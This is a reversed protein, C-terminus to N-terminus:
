AKSIYKLLFSGKPTTWRALEMKLRGSQIAPDHSVLEEIRKRDKTRFIFVGRFDGGGDIPGALVLDGSAAMARINAMHGDQIKNLEDAPLNPADQPHMLFGFWLTEVDGFKSGKTPVTRDFYWTYAKLTLLGERVFPDDQLIDLAEKETKRDIVVLGEREGAGTLPGVLLAKRESYLKELFKLHDAQAKALVDKEVHPAGKSGVFFVLQCPGMDLKPQQSTLLSLCISALLVM